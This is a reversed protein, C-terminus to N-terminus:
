VKCRKGHRWGHTSCIGLDTASADFFNICPNFTVALDVGIIAVGQLDHRLAELWSAKMQAHKKTKVAAVRPFV